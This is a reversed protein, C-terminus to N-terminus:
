LHKPLRPKGIVEQGQAKLAEDIFDKVVEFGVDAELLANRVDVMAETINKQTISGRGSLSKRISTLQNSLNGFM